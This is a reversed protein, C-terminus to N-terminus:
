SPVEFNRCEPCGRYARGKPSTKDIAKGHEPCTWGKPKGNAAVEPDDAEAIICEVTPGGTFAEAQASAKLRAMNDTIAQTEPTLKKAKAAAKLDAAAERLKAEEGEVIVAIPDEIGAAGRLSEVVGILNAIQRELERIVGAVVEGPQDNPFMATTKPLTGPQKIAEGQVPTLVSAAASKRNVIDSAMSAIISGSDM